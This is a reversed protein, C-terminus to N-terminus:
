VGVEGRRKPADPDVIWGPLDNLFEDNAPHEPFVKHPNLIGRPDFQDKLTRMLGMALAGHEAEAHDRKLAGLGHEASITGGLEIADRFIQAAIHSVAPRQEETFVLTP